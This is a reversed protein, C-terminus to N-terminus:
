SLAESMERLISGGCDIFNDATAVTAYVHEISSFFRWYIADPYCLGGRREFKEVMETPVSGHQARFIESSFLSEHM